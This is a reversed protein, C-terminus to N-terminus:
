KRRTLHLVPGSADAKREGVWQTDDRALEAVVDPVLESIPALLRGGARLVRAAERTSMGSIGAVDFAAARIAGSAVPLVEGSRVVSAFPFAPSLPNVLLFQTGAVMAELAPASAAWRGMLMVIGGPEALGLLAALRMAEAEDPVDSGASDTADPAEGEGTRFDVLGGRVPYEAACVPCGLTGRMVHRDVLEDFSGVLWCDEHPRVCRLTDLLEIFM